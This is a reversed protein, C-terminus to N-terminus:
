RASLAQGNLHAGDRGLLYLFAPAIAEPTPLTAPDEAPMAGARMDTAVGGPDLSNVRVSSVNALEDALVQTLGELAFKSASYAGWYASGRRGVGSSVNVISASPAARLLPMLAQTLLFPARVNVQMQANWDAESINQVPSRRGLVAANNVLGDLAGNLAEGIAEALQRAAAADIQGLDVPQLIPEPGGQADIAEACAELGELSRALLVCQAGCASAALAVARGIGRSAGTIVVGAGSLLDAPPRYDSLKM